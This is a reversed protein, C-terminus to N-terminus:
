KSNIKIQQIVTGYAAECSESSSALNFGASALLTELCGDQHAEAYGNHGIVRIITDSAQQLSVRPQTTHESDVRGVQHLCFVSGALLAIGFTKSLITM